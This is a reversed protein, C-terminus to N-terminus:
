ATAEEKPEEIVPLEEQRPPFNEGRRLAVADCGNARKAANISDHTKTSDTYRRAHKDLAVIATTMGKRLRPCNAIKEDRTM